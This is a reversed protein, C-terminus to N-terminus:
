DPGQGRVSAGPLRDISRPLKGAPGLLRSVVIFSIVVAVADSRLRPRTERRNRLSITPTAANTSPAPAATPGNAGAAFASTL